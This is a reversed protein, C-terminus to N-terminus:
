EVRLFIGVTYLLLGKFQLGRSLSLSLSVQLLSMIVVTSLKKACVQGKSNTDKDKDKDTDKHKAAAARIGKGLEMLAFSPINFIAVQMGVIVFTISSFDVSSTEVPYRHLNNYIYYSILTIILIITTYLAPTTTSYPLLLDPSELASSRM